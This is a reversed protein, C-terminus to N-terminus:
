YSIDKYNINCTPVGASTVNPAVAASTGPTDAECIISSTVTDSSISSDRNNGGSYARLSSDLATAVITATEIGGNIIYSYNTTTSNAGGQLTGIALAEFSTAFSVNETRYVIQARNVVGLNQKAEAQKAKGSQNLFTPLAIASLIGILVMVIVLEILTFGKEQKKQILHQLFKAKLETKM